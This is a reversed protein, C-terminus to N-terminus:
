FSLGGKAWIGWQSLATSRCCKKTCMICSGPADDDCSKETNHHAGFEIELGVGLYPVAREFYDFWNYSFHTFLKHSMGRTRAGNINLDQKAIPYIDQSTVITTIDPIAHLTAHEFTYWTNGDLEQCSSNCCDCKAYKIKECSRAWFNYGIDLTFNNHFYNLLAVIDVQIPSSVKVTCRSINAVPAIEVVTPSEETPIIKAALMYRSLPGNKCLDFVRRQKAKFLHTLNADCYLSVARNQDQWDILVTHSTLGGGFEWHKGNGVIPEFLFEGRPKNGTPIAVRAFVGIHYTDQTYNWGLDAQIDSLGTRKQACPYIKAYRLGQFNFNFAEGEITLDQAAPAKGACSYDYFSTLDTSLFLSGVNGLTTTNTSRSDEFPQLAWKTYTIPTHIRFYVNRIWEDLELYMNFDVLFNQVLPNFCIDSKFDNPLYLYASAWDRKDRNALNMGRIHISRCDCGQLDCGFLLSAIDKPRFSRTYVPTLSTSSYFADKNHLNVHETWGVLERAADISQSRASIYPTVTCCCQSCPTAGLARISASALAILALSSSLKM